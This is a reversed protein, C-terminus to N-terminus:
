TLNFHGTFGDRGPTSTADILKITALIEDRTPLECFQDNEAQSIMPYIYIRVPIRCIFPRFMLVVGSFFEQAVTGM